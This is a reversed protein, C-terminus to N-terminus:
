LEIREWDLEPEYGDLEFPDPVEWFDTRYWRGNINALLPVEDGHDPDEYFRIGATTGMYTQDLM